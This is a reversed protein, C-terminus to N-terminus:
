STLGSERRRATRPNRVVLLAIGAALATLGAVELSGLREGLVIVGLLTATVPEMLTLTSVTAAQLRQLGRAFLLYAVTTTALGLWLAMAIGDATALWSTDTFALVVVGALAASGFVAAM